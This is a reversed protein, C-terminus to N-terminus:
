SNVTNYKTKIIQCWQRYASVALFTFILYQLALMGLGRYGYLPTAITDGIIWLTWNEIKKNAMFWMGTFFLGSTFIDVYNDWLITYDFIVYVAYVVVITLVFLVVGILKEKLNTRSISLVAGTEGKRSWNYWGYISMVSFYANILMDGLYGALFLLYMTILTAILGIPYLLVNEKKALVVSWIGCVFAIFELVIQYLPTDQYANLFFDLM